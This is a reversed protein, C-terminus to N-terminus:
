AMGLICKGQSFALIKQGTYVVLIHDRSTHRPIPFGDQAEGTNGSDTVQHAERPGSDSKGADSLTDRVSSFGTTKM